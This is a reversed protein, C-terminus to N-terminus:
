KSVERPGRKNKENGRSENGIGSLASVDDDAGSYFRSDEEEDVEEISEISSDGLNEARKGHYRRNNGDNHHSINRLSQAIRSSLPATSNKNPLVERDGSGSSQRHNNQSEVPEADDFFIESAISSNNMSEDFTSLGRNTGLSSQHTYTNAAKRTTETTQSAFTRQRDISITSKLSKVRRNLNVDSVVNEFENFSDDQEEDDEEKIPNSQMKSDFHARKPSSPICDFPEDFPTDEKALQIPQKVRDDVEEADTFGEMESLNNTSPQSVGTQNEDADSSGATQNLDEAADAMEEVEVDSVDMAAPAAESSADRKIMNNSSDKEVFGDPKIWSVRQTKKNFYYTKGTSVDLAARWYKSTDKTAVDADVNQSLIEEPKSLDSTKACDENKQIDDIKDNNDNNSGGGRKFWSKKRKDAVSAMATTEAVKKGSETGGVGDADENSRVGLCAPKKWTVEKTKKNYYYTKNTTSDLTARWYKAEESLDNEKYSRSKANDKSTRVSSSNNNAGSSLSIENEKASAGGAKKGRGMFGISRKSASSRPPNEETEKVKSARAEDYGMPKEWRVERTVKHYYYHKNSATDFIAKWKKAEEIYSQPAPSTGNKDYTPFTLDADAELGTKKSKTTRFSSTSAKNSRTNSAATTAADANYSKDDETTMSALSTTTPPDKKKPPPISSSKSSKHFGFGGLLSKKNGRKEKTTKDNVEAGDDNDDKVLLLEDNIEVDGYHSNTSSNRLANSGSPTLAAAMARGVKDMAPLPTSSSSPSEVAANLGNEAVIGPPDSGMVVSGGSATSSSSKKIANALKKQQSSTLISRSHQKQQQPSKQKELTSPSPVASSDLQSTADPSSAVSTLSAVPSVVRGVEKRGSNMSSSSINNESPDVVAMGGISGMMAVARLPPSLDDDKSMTTTSAKNSVLKMSSLKNKLIGKIVVPSKGGGVGSSAGAASTGGVSKAPSPSVGATTASTTADTTTKTSVKKHSSSPVSSSTGTLHDEDLVLEVIDYEEQEEEKKEKAASGRGGKLNKTKEMNDDEDDDMDDDDPAVGWVAPMEYCFGGNKKKNQQQQQQQQPPPPPPPPSFAHQAPPPPPPPPPVDIDEDEEDAYSTSHNNTLRLLDNVNDLVGCENLVKLVINDSNNNGAGRTTNHNIESEASEMSKGRRLMEGWRNSGNNGGMGGSAFAPHPSLSASLDSINSDHSPARCLIKDVSLFKGQLSNSNGGQPQSPQKEQLSNRRHQQQLVDNEEEDDPGVGWDVPHNKSNDNNSNNNNDAEPSSPPTSAETKDPSAIMMKTSPASRHHSYRSSGVVGGGSERSSPMEAFINTM